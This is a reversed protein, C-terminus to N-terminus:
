GEWVFNAALYYKWLRTDNRRDMPPRCGSLDAELPPRCGAPPCVGGGGASCSATLLRATHMRSSHMRTKMCNEAIINGFILNACGRGGIPNVGRRPECHLAPDLIEWVPRWGRHKPYFVIIQCFNQRFQMLIFSIPSPAGWQVRWHLAYKWDCWNEKRIFRNLVEIKKMSFTFNVYFCLWYWHRIWSKGSTPAGVGWPPRWCAIKDFNGLFYMFNFSNPGGPPARTWFKVIYIRWQTRRISDSRHMHIKFVNFM